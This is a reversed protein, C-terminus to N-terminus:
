CGGGSLVFHKASLKKLELSFTLSVVELIEEVEQDRFDARLLCNAIDPNNLEIEVGYTDSLFAVVEALPKKDFSILNTKWALYNRDENGAKKIDGSSVEYYAREGATLTVKAEKEVRDGVEVTGTEVVVETKLSADTTSVMFSTGLVEVVTYETQVEFVKTEDRKVDFFAKGSLTAVRNENSQSFTLTSYPALTVLSGDSLTVELKAEASAFQEQDLLGFHQLAFYGLGAGIVVAAAIKVFHVFVNSLKPENKVTDPETNNHGNENSPQVQSLVASLASQSDVQASAHWVKSFALFEEANKESEGRWVEVDKRQEPTLEDSFYKALVEEM